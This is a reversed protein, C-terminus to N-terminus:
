RVARGASEVSNGQGCTRMETQRPATVKGPCLKAQGEPTWTPAAVRQVSGVSQSVADLARTVNAAAVPSLVSLPYVRMVNGRPAGSLPAKRAMQRAVRAIHPYRFVANAGVPLGRWM